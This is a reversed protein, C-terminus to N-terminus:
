DSMQRREYTQLCAEHKLRISDAIPLANRIYYHKLPFHGYSRRKEQIPKQEKCVIWYFCNVRHIARYGNIYDVSDLWRFVNGTNQSRITGHPMHSRCCHGKACPLYRIHLRYFNFICQKSILSLIDRSMTKLSRRYGV